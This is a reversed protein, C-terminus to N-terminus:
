RLILQNALLTQNQVFNLYQKDRKDDGLFKFHSICSNSKFCFTFGNCM